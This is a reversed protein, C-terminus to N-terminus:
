QQRRLVKGALAAGDYVGNGLVVRGNILVHGIGQPHIDPHHFDAATSVTGPDLVVLDAFCGDALMGRQQLGMAQAPVSTCKRIATELDVLGKDRCHVGLFRPYCGHFLFSPKGFGLLLTDTAVAVEPHRLAPYQTRVTFLDEPRDLSLFVLVKGQEQLLLDCAAEIPHQGRQDAIDVLRQGELDHNRESGVSMITACRYGFIRFFNTSWTDDGDHPWESRGQEIDRIMARRARPDGLRQIVAERSDTLVWPPFFALLHTFGTTSPMVDMGVRLGDARYRDYCRLLRNMEAEVLWDPVLRSSLWSHKAWTRILSIFYRQAIPGVWPLIFIHSVQARVGTQRSVEVLEDLARFVTNATYSRLHAAIRGDHRALTRGLWVLERTDSALGPFYQLGASLGLAGQELAGELVRAMQELEERSAVARRQGMAQLRILGHPCLLGLNLAVGSKELLSLYDDMSRWTFSEDFEQGTVGELYFRQAHLNHDPDIPALGYGCNGGIFTTIGQRILPELVRPHDPKYIYLDAHSHIDVFGPCVVKGAADIVRDAEIPGSPGISQIREGEVLLDARYGPRGTGDIITGHKILTRM